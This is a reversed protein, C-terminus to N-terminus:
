PPAVPRAVGAAAQPVADRGLRRDGRRRWLGHVARRGRRRNRAVPIPRYEREGAGRGYTRCVGKEAEMEMM